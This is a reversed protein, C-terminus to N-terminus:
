CPLGPLCGPPLQAGLALTRQTRLPGPQGCEQLGVEHFGEGGWAM